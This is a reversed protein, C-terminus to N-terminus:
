DARLTRIPDIRAARLAPAFCAVLSVLTLTLPSGIFSIADLTTVGFLLGAMLRSAVAAIAIGTAVGAGTLLLGRGVIMVIADAPRAGLALRIGIERARQRVVYTMTAYIGVAALVLAVAAFLGFLVMSSRRQATTEALIATMPRVGFVPLESDIARVDDQIAHAMTGESGHHRVVLSMALGSAQWVSRYIQADPMSGLSASRTSGVVGVITLWPATSGARGPRIRRGIPDEGPFHRQVFRESVLIVPPASADDDLTFLRGRVLPIRMATFYGDSAQIIESTAFENGAIPRGEIMFPQGRTAGDLPLRSVWGVAEVGPREALRALSQQYFRTRPPLAFYRGSSPENPQPMWLRATLVDDSDFGPDISYLRAFSRVLLSAGILLILALAFQAIVFTHRWRHVHRASTTAQASDKLAHQPETRAAHRAPVIGFIVGTFTAISVAFLLVRRDVVLDAALPVDSPAFRVIVVLSWAALVVGIAGAVLSLLVSETLLQRVIRGGHAGLAQRIAFERRRTSARALLLSAVNACAITLVIGVAGFLLWLPRRASGALHEQLPEIRPRWGADSPYAAPFQERAASALAEIRARAAALTVGPRLRAIVSALMFPGRVPTQFPAARYGAPAWLEVDGQTGRGPHRFGQPMVGIITYADDDIRVRRGIANPDQGFRRKWLGDSIVAVETIGPTSDRSGFVRGLQAHAGLMEFYAPSVLQAELREPEDSGTLNANVPFDGSVAAFIDRQQEYDLLEPIAVGVDLAGRGTLDASIRVLRGADVFPLPRLLVADIVSFIATSAGIGLALMFVSAIAFGPSKALVRCAQRVDDVWGHM